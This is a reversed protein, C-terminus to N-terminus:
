NNFQIIIWEYEKSISSLLDLKINKPIIEWTYTEIELCSTLASIKLFKVIDDIDQNTTLFNAYKQNFIPLHFHVRWESTRNKNLNSIAESLDRYKYLYGNSKKETVQHLYVNDKFKNLKNILFNQEYQDLKLHLASSIQIKGIKVGIQNLAIFNKIHDEFQIAQHCVDYCIRVHRVLHIRAQFLSIQLDKALIFAIKKLIFEGFFLLMDQINELICDAEPEFDIHIIKGQKEYIKILQQVLELIYNSVRGCFLDNSVKKSYFKYALPSTSFGVENGPLCLEASLNILTNNFNNRKRNTWDPYYVKEKISTKYFEGYVFGNLTIVYCNNQNLWKKLKNLNNNKLLQNAAKNSLRLGIGFPKNPSLKMKILPINIKLNSFIEEWSDGPHINSCYTLDFQKYTQIKM